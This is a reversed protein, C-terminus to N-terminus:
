LCPFCFLLLSYCLHSVGTHLFSAWPATNVTVYQTMIGWERCVYWYLDQMVIFLVTARMYHELLFRRPFYLCCSFYFGYVVYFQLRQSLAFQLYLKLMIWIFLFGWGFIRIVEFEEWRILAMDFHWHSSVNSLMRSTWFLTKFLCSLM